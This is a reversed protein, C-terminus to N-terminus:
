VKNSRAVTAVTPLCKMSSCLLPYVLYVLLSTPYSELILKSYRYLLLDVLLLGSSKTHEVVACCCYYNRATTASVLAALATDAALLLFFLSSYERQM